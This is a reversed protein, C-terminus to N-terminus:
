VFSFHVQEQASCDEDFLISVASPFACLFFFKGTATLADAAPIWSSLCQPLACLASPINSSTYCDYHAEKHFAFLYSGSDTNESGPLWQVM